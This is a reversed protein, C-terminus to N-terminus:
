AHTFLEFVAEWLWMDHIYIAYDNAQLWGGIHKRAEDRESM